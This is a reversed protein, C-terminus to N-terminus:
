GDEEGGYWTKTARIILDESWCADIKRWCFSLTASRSSRAFITSAIHVRPKSIIAWRYTNKRKMRNDERATVSKMRLKPFQATWLHRSAAEVRSSLLFITAHILNTVRNLQKANMGSLKCESNASFPGYRRGRWWNNRSDHRAFPGRSRLLCETTSQIRAASPRDRGFGPSYARKV